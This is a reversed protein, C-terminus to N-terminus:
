DATDLIALISGQYPDGSGLPLFDARRHILRGNTTLATLTASGAAGALISPPPCLGSLPTAHEVEEAEHSPSESHYEVLRGLIRQSPLSLWEELAHNCYVIRRGDGLVFAPRPSHDFSAALSNAKSTRKSM